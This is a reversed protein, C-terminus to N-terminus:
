NRSSSSLEKLNERKDFFFYSALPPLIIAWTETLSLGDIQTSYFAVKEGRQEIEQKVKICAELVNKNM